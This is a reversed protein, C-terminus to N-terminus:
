QKQAKAMYLCKLERPHGLKKLPDPRNRKASGSKKKLVLLFKTLGLTGAGSTLQAVEKQRFQEMLLLMLDLQRVLMWGYQNLMNKSARIGVFLIIDGDIIRSSLDIEQIPYVPYTCMTYKDIVNAIRLLKESEGADHKRIAVITDQGIAMPLVSYGEYHIHVGILNPRGQEVNITEHDIGDKVLTNNYRYPGKSNILVGDPMGLDRGADLAHRLATHNRIYWNGILIIIDGVPQRIPNPHRVKPQHDFLFVMKSHVGRKSYALGPSKGNIAIVGSRNRSELLHLLSTITSNQTYHFPSPLHRSYRRKRDVAFAIWLSSCSTRDNYTAAVPHLRRSSPSTPRHDCVSKKSLSSQLAISAEKPVSRCAYQVLRFPPTKKLNAGEGVVFSQIELKLRDIFSFSPVVTATPFVHCSTDPTGTDAYLLHSRKIFASCTDRTYNDVKLREYKFFAVRM